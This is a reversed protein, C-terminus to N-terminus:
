NYTYIYDKTEIKSIYLWNGDHDQMAILTDRLNTMDIKDGLSNYFYSGEELFCSVSVHRSTDHEGYLYKINCKGSKYLYRKGYMEGSETKRVTLIAMGNEEVLRKIFKMQSSLKTKTGRRNIKVKM